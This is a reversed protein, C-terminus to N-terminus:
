GIFSPNRNREGQVARLARREISGNLDRIIGELRAIAAQDAGRADIYYTGGGMGQGNPLVTGARGPIIIEPGKEGVLTPRGASLPGGTARASLSTSGIFNRVGGSISSSVPQPTGINGGSFFGSFVSGVTANLITGLIGGSSSKAQSFQFQIVAKLLDQLVSIGVSRLDTFNDILSLLSNGLNDNITQSLTKATTDTKKLVESAKVGEKAVEGLSGAVVELASRQERATEQASQIVSDFVQDANKQEPSFSSFDLFSDTASRQNEFIARNRREIESIADVGAGLNRFRSVEGVNVGPLVNAIKRLTEDINALITNIITAIYKMFNGVSSFIRVVTSGVFIIGQLTKGVIRGLIEANSAVDTMADKTASLDRNIEQIFGVGFQDKFTMFMRGFTSEIQAAESNLDEFSELLIGALVDATLKGEKGMERLQGVGVGLGEAFLRALRTNNELVSRLEDGQLRGSALGQALQIAAAASEQASAGSILFSNNVSQTIKLLESQTLNLDKTAVSIRSYLNVTSSLSSQTDRAVQVLGRFALQADAASESVLRIRNGIETFQDAMQAIGRITAFTAFTGVLRKTTTAVSKLSNDMRKSSSEVARSAKNMDSILRAVDTEFNIRLTGVTAM